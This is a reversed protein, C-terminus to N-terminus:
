ISVKKNGEPGFVKAAASRLANAQNASPMGAKERDEEEDIKKLLKKGFGQFNLSRQSKHIFLNSWKDKDTNDRKGMMMNSSVPTFNSLSNNKLLM